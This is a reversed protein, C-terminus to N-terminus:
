GNPYGTPGEPRQAHSDRLAAEVRREIEKECREADAYRNQWRIVLSAVNLIIGLAVLVLGATFLSVRGLS